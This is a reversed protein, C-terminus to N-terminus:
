GASVTAMVENGHSNNPLLHPFNGRVPWGACGRKTTGVGGFASEGGRERKRERRGEAMRTIEGM